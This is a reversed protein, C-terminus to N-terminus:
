IEVEFEEFFEGESLVRVEMEKAKKVKGGAKEGVVLLDTNRSIGTVVTGGEKFVFDKLSSRPFSLTGSFLIKMGSFKGSSRPSDPVVTLISSLKLLSSVHPPSSTFTELSQILTPGIGSVDNLETSFDTSPSSFSELFRPLTTYHLSLLSSTVSGCHRIGLSFIFRSLPLPTSRCSSLSSAINSTSKPGWGPLSSIKSIQDDSEFSEFLSSVGTGILVDSELLQAIKSESLGAVDLCQRSVAHSLVAIKQPPCTLTNTCRLVQGSGGGGGETVVETASSNTEANVGVGVGVGQREWEFLTPSGCAPCLKPATLNLFPLDDSGASSVRLVQPIVDGARQIDVVTGERAGKLMQEVLVFNHLSASSVTVGGVDVPELKAVPTIAGTRGVRPEVGLLRTSAVAAPFKHAIAWRPSRTRGGVNSRLTSNALKYVVGDIEYPLESRKRLLEAHYAVLDEVGNVVEVESPEPIDFGAGKLAGRMDKEFVEGGGEEEADYAYFRLMGQNEVGVGDKFRRLIGSAANRPNTYSFDEDLKLREFGETPLIVEGRVEVIDGTFSGRLSNPINSIRKVAKTVDEGVRGDGRTAGRCLEWENNESNEKEEDRRRYQVAIALGDMKPEKIVQIDNGWESMKSLWRSVEDVTMANDLSLLPKLHSVRTSNSSSITDSSITDSSITDSSTTDSSIPPLVPGVRGGYRTAKNGLPNSLEYAKLVEPHNVCIDMEQSCLDDYEADTIVPSSHLYYLEDHHLIQSSLSSLRTLLKDQINHTDVSTEVSSSSSNDNNSLLRSSLRCLGSTALRQTASTVLPTILPTVLQRSCLMSYSFMLFLLLLSRM